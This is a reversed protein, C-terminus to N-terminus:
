IDMGRGQKPFYHAMIKKFLNEIMKHIKEKQAGLPIMKNKTINDWSEGYTDKIKRM